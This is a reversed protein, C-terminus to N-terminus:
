LKEHEINSEFDDYNQRAVLPTYFYFNLDKNERKLREAITIDLAETIKETLNLMTKAVEKDILYAGTLPLIKIFKHSGSKRGIIYNRLDLLSSVIPAVFIYPIRKLKGLITHKSKLTLLHIKIKKLYNRFIDRPYGSETYNFQLYNWRHKEENKEIEGNIINKFDRDLIVDDELILLYKTDKYEIDTLFKQYCRKHSLACGIEGPNLKRGGRKIAIDKDYEVNNKELYEKGNVADLVDFRLDLIRMQDAMFHLRKYDKKLNIIIVKYQSKNM